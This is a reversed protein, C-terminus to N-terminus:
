RAFQFVKCVVTEHFSPEIIGFVILDSHVSKKIGESSTTISTEWIIVAAFETGFM